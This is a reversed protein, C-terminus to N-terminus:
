TKHPYTKHPTPMQWLVMPSLQLFLEVQELVVEKEHVLALPPQPIRQGM